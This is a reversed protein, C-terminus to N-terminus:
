TLIEKMALGLSIAFRPDYTKLHIWPQGVTTKIKTMDTIAEATNQVNSGGGALLIKKFIQVQGIRNQYYKALHAVESSLIKISQTFDSKLEDGGVAVTSTLKITEKDYCTLGSVKTGIDIVITPENDAQPILLRVLASPKTELGLMELGAMRITEMLDNVLVKPAAVVLVEVTNDSPNQGVLQWDMYTDQPPIPFFETARAPINKNIEALTMKPLDISKTFVLSEPLASSVIRASIAHPKALILTERIVKALKEKDKIGDKTLVSTDIPSEAVGILRTGSGKGKIQAMKLTQYGIDLGLTPKKIGLIGEFM